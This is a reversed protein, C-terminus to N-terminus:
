NAVDLFRVHTYEADTCNAFREHLRKLEEVVEEKEVRCDALAVQCQVLERKLEQCMSEARSM